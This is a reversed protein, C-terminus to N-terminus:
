KDCEYFHETLYRQWEKVIVQVEPCDPSQEEYIALKRFVSEAFSCFAEYEEKRSKQDMASFHIEFERFYDTGGWREM